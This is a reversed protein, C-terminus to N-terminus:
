ADRGGNNWRKISDAKDMESFPIHLSHLREKIRELDHRFWFAVLVPKGNAFLRVLSSKGVHRIGSVLVFADDVEYVNNLLKLESRRGVFKRM